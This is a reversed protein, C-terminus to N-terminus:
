LIMELKTVSLAKQRGEETTKVYSMFSEIDVHGTIAMADKLNVGSNLLRNVVFYRFCHPTLKQGHIVIKKQSYLRKYRRREQRNM